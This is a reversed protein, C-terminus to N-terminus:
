WRVVVPRASYRAPDQERAGSGLQGDSDSGWCLVEGSGKVACTHQSGAGAGLAVVGDLGEVVRPSFVPASSESGTEGAQNSGWCHVAGTKLLACTHYAGAAITTIEAPLSRPAGPLPVDMMQDDGNGLQGGANSGWCSFTAGGRRACVHGDGASLQLIGPVLDSCAPREVIGRPASVIGSDNNGWGCLTSAGDHVLIAVTATIIPRPTGLVLLATRSPFSMSAPRALESQRNEGWCHVGAPSVGCFTLSGGALETLGALPAGDETEVPLAAEPGKGLDGWCRVRGGELLACAAQIGVAVASAREPIEVTVPPTV